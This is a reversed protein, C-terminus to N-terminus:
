HLIGSSIRHQFKERYESGVIYSISEKIYIKGFNWGSGKKCELIKNLNKSKDWLNGVLFTKLYFIEFMNLKNMSNGFKNQAWLVDINLM